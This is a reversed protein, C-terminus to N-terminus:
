PILGYYELDVLDGATTRFENRLLGELQFGCKIAISASAKNGPIVRIILKRIELDSFCMKCVANTAETALGKGESDEDLYYGIECKPIRWDFGKLIISGILANTKKDRVAYIFKERKQWELILSEIYEATTEITTCSQLSGPFSDYLRSFNKQILKHLNEVDTSQYPTLTLRETNLSSPPFLNPHTM